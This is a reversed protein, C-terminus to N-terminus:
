FQVDFLKISLSYKEVFLYLESYGLSLIILIGVEKNM